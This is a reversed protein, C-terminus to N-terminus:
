CLLRCAPHVSLAELRRVNSGRHSLSIKRLGDANPITSAIEPLDSQFELSFAFMSEFERQRRLYENERELKKIEAILDEASARSRAGDGVAGSGSGSSHGVIRDRWSRLSNANVGLERAVQKIPRGSSQLLEVADRRFEETYSNGTNSM